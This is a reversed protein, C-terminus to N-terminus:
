VINLGAFIKVHIVNRRPHDGNIMLQVFTLKDVIPMTKNLTM